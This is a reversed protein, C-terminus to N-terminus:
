NVWIDLLETAKQLDPSILLFYFILDDAYGQWPIKKTGYIPVNNRRMEKREDRSIARPNIRYSNEYDNENDCKDIFIRM